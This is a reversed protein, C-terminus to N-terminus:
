GNVPRSSPPTRRLRSKRSTLIRNPQKLKTEIAKIVQAGVKRWSIRPTERDLAERITLRTATRERTEQGVAPQIDSRILERLTIQTRGMIGIATRKGRLELKSTPNNGRKAIAKPNIPPNTGVPTKAAPTSTAPSSLNPPIAIATM